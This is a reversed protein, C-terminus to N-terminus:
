GVVVGGHDQHGMDHADVLVEPVPDRVEGQNRHALLFEALQGRQLVVIWVQGDLVVVAMKPPNRVERRLRNTERSRVHVILREHVREHRDHHRDHHHCVPDAVAIVHDVHEEFRNSGRDTADRPVSGHGRLGDDLGDLLDAAARLGHVRQALSPEGNRGTGEPYPDCSWSITIYPWAIARSPVAGIMPESSKPTALSSARTSARIRSLMTVSSGRRWSM